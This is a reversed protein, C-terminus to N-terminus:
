KPGETVAETTAIQEDVFDAVRDRAQGLLVVAHTLAGHCGMQEVADVADQIMREAKTWKDRRIRRPVDPDKILLGAGVSEGEELDARKLWWEKPKDIKTM